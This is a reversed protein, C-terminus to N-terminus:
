TKREATFISYLFFLEILRSNRFFIDTEGVFRRSNLLDWILTHYICVTYNFQAESFCDLTLEILCSTRISRWCFKQFGFSRMKFNHYIFVTHNFQAEFCDLILEILCSTRLLIKLKESLTEPIWFIEYFVKTQEPRFYHFLTMILKKLRNSAMFLHIISM